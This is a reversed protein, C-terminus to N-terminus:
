FFRAVGFETDWSFASLEQRGKKDRRSAGKSDKRKLSVMRGTGRRGVSNVGLTPSNLLFLRCWARYSLQICVVGQARKRGQHKDGQQISNGPQQKRFRGEVFRGKPVAFSGSNFIPLCCGYRGFEAVDLGRGLQIRRGTSSRQEKRNQIGFEQKARLLDAETEGTSRVEAAFHIEFFSSRVLTSNQFVAVTDVLSLKSPEM